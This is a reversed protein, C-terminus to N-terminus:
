SLAKSCPRGSYRAPPHAWPWASPWKESGTSPECWCYGPSTACAILLVVAVALFLIRLLPRAQLVTIQQLPYVVPRFHFVALEPPFNRMIQQAVGEADSQAQALTVGPRLRGVMSYNWSGGALVSIEDPTFSMRVWLESRFLRGQMVPFEFDRPMVGIILYSRRDLLIKRGLIRPDGVFRSKWTSYSLIAVPVKQEDEQPTFVRGLLPVVGLATWVGPTMRLANIQAPEGVGSLEYNAGQYGGVSTFPRTNRAYSIVEPGTVPGSDQQGWKTGSLQDGLTVLRDPDPFSLPRLLVGDVISFIATTAGIGFALMMIATAAFGPSKRLQRFVMRLAFLLNRM